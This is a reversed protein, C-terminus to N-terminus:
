PVVRLQNDGGAVGQGIRNRIDRNLVPCGNSSDQHDNAHPGHMLFGARGQMNNNPSPDLRMSGPLSTGSGTVNDRQPEITYSGQPLPGTNPVGQMAPNNVGDGHGAYGAGVDSTNGNSDVHQLQGTSQHYVWDLGLPDVRSLPDGGV